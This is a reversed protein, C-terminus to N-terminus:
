HTFGLGQVFRLGKWIGEQHTQAKKAEFGEHTEVGDSFGALPAFMPSPPPARILRWGSYEGQTRRVQQIMDVM